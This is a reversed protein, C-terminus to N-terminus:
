HLVRNNPVTDPVVEGGLNVGFKAQLHESAELVRQHILESAVSPELASFEEKLGRIIISILARVYFSTYFANATNPESLLSTVPLLTVAEDTCPDYDVSYTMNGEQTMQHKIIIPNFMAVFGEDDNWEIEALVQEGTILKLSSVISLEEKNEIDKSDDQM